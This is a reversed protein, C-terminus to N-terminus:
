LKSLLKNILKKISNEVMFFNHIANDTYIFLLHLERNGGDLFLDLPQRNLRYAERMLRKLRNRDVAHHFVKKPVVVGVKVRSMADGEVLDADTTAIERSVPEAFCYLLKVPYSYFSNGSKFLEQFDTKKCLHVAKPLGQAKM